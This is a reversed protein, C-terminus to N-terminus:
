YTPKIWHMNCTVRASLTDTITGRLDLRESRSRACGVPTRLTTERRYTTYSIGYCIFSAKTRKFDMKYDELVDRHRQVAHLMSQTPPNEPDNLLAAMEEVTEKLQEDPFAEVDAKLRCKVGTM